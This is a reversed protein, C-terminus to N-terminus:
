GNVLKLTAHEAAPCDWPIDAKVADHEARAHALALKERAENLRSQSGSLFNLTRQGDLQGMSSETRITRALMALEDLENQMRDLNDMAAHFRHSMEHGMQDLNKM